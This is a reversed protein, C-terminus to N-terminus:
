RRSNQNGKTERCAVHLVSPVVSFATMEQETVFVVM